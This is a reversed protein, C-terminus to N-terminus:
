KIMNNRVKEIIPAMKKLDNEGFPQAEEFIKVVPKLDEYYPKISADASMIELLSFVTEVRKNQNGLIALIEKNNKALLALQSTVYLAEVNAGIVSLAYMDPHEGKSFQQHCFNIAETVLYNISDKNDANQKMRGVYNKSSTLQGELGLKVIIQKELKSIESVKDGRNYVNAYQLDFAYMGLGLSLQSATLLKEANAEPVTLDIIYSAEAKNLLEAIESTEPLKQIIEVIQDKMKVADFVEVEVTAEKGNSTTGKSEKSKSSQNCGAILLIIIGSILITKLFYNKM